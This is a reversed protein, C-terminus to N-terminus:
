KRLQQIRSKINEMAKGSISIHQETGYPSDEGQEIEIIELKSFDIKKNKSLNKPIQVTIKLNVNRYTADEWGSIQDDPSNDVSYFTTGKDQEGKEYFLVDNWYYSSDICGNDFEELSDFTIKEKILDEINEYEDLEDVIEQILENPIEKSNLEYRLIVEGAYDKRGGILYFSLLGKKLNLDTAPVDYLFGVGNPNDRPIFGKDAGGINSCIKIFEELSAEVQIGNTEENKRPGKIAAIKVEESEDSLLKVKLEEPLYSLRSIASRVEVLINRSLKELTSNNAKTENLNQILANEDFGNIDYIINLLRNPLDRDNAAGKVYEDEDNKLQDIVKKPLEDRLAILIRIEQNHNKSLIFLTSEDINESNIKERILEFKSFGGDDLYHWILKKWEENLERERISSSIRSYDWYNKNGKIENLIEQSTNPHRAINNKINSESDETLGRYIINIIKRDIQKPFIDNLIKESIEYDDLGEWETPLNEAEKTKKDENLDDSIGLSKAQILAMYYKQLNSYGCAQALEKPQLSNGVEKTKQLLKEGKLPILDSM